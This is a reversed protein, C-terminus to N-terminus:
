VYPDNTELFERVYSQVGDELSTFPRDYGAARLRDIRAETFYQYQNRVTGPMDIYEINPPEGIATFITAAIEDFSRAAGTGLNFIGSASPNKALWLMVSVTDRVHVFDRLQGGNVYDPNHSKFLRASGTERIQKWFQPVVSGQGGKHYENPGYVNFFRLGAWHPPKHGAGAMHLAARDFLLKSWGYLNLPRLRAQATANNADDFSQEGSGYTAASSAYIFPVHHETCWDWLRVSLLYNNRMVQDVNREITSSIAGMHFVAEPATNMTLWPLLNDPAIVKLQGRKAINRALAEEAFDCVVPTDGREALAAVLNSGIFGSGGTVLYMRFEM